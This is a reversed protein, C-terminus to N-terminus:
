GEKHNGNFYDNTLQEVQDTIDRALKLARVGDVGSV